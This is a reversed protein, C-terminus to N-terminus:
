KRMAECQNNREPAQILMNLLERPDRGHFVYFRFREDSNWKQYWMTNFKRDLPWALVTHDKTVYWGPGNFVFETFEEKAQQATFVQSWDYELM